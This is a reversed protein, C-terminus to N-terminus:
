VHLKCTEPIPVYKKTDPQKGLCKHYEFRLIHHQCAQQNKLPKALHKQAAEHFETGSNVTKTGSKVLRTIM